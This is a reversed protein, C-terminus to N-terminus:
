FADARDGLKGEEKGGEEEEAEGRAAARRGRRTTEGRRETGNYRARVDM